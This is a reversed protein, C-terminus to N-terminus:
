LKDLVSRYVDWLAQQETSGPEIDLFTPASQLILEGKRIIVVGLSGETVTMLGEDGLDEIKQLVVYSPIEPAFYKRLDQFKSHISIDFYSMGGATKSWLCQKGEGSKVLPKRYIKQIQEDSVWDCIKIEETVNSSETSKEESSSCGSLAIILVIAALICFSRYPQLRNTIM